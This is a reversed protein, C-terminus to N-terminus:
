IKGTVRQWADILAEYFIPGDNFPAIEVKFRIGSRGKVDIIDGLLNEYRHQIDEIEKLDISSTRGDKHYMLRQTTLIAAERGNLTVTADYYAILEESDNLLNHKEIYELAYADMENIMKVGGSPGSSLWVFLGILLVGLIFLSIGIVKLKGPKSRQM